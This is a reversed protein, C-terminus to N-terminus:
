PDIERLNAAAMEDAPRLRSNEIEPNRAMNAM